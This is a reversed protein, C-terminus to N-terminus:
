PDVKRHHTLIRRLVVGSRDSRVHLEDRLRLPLGPVTMARQLALDEALVAVEFAVEGAVVSADPVAVGGIGHLLMKTYIRTAAHDEPQLFFLITKVAGADLEELRLQLQFPWRYTYTARRRQRVPRLGAAVGPDGPNDFWQVQSSGLGDDDFTVEFPEVRPEEAAGFTGAHVFPFHAVDLFNEALAGAPSSSRDPVLWGQAFQPDADDASDLLAVQPARPAAWVVGFREQVAAVEPEVTVRGDAARTVTYRRGLLRVDLGAGAPVETGLALPHWGHELSADLNTLTDAGARTDALGPRREGQLGPGPNAPDVPAVWLLGQDERVGWPVTLHARGPVAADPGSSPVLLCAGDPGFQWGHYACQLRGGLNTAHALRVLRHPCRAEVVSAPADPTARFAVWDRNGARVEVPVTGLEATRAVPWWGDVPGGPLATPEANTRM